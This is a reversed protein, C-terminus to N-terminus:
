RCLAVPTGTASLRLIQALGVACPFVATLFNAGAMSSCQNVDDVM